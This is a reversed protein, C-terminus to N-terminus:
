DLGSGADRQQIRLADCNLPQPAVFMASASDGRMHVIMAEAVLGPDVTYSGDEISQRLERHM